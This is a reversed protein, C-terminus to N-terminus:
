DGVYTQKARVGLEALADEVDHTWRGLHRVELCRDGNVIDASYDIESQVVWSPIWDYIRVSGVNSVEVVHVDYPFKMLILVNNSKGKLTRPNLPMDGSRFYKADCRAVYLKMDLVLGRSWLGTWFTVRERWRLNEDGIARQYRSIADFAAGMYDGLKWNDLVELVRKWIEPFRGEQIPGLMNNFFKNARERFAPEPVAVRNEPLLPHLVAEFLREMLEPFRPHGDSGILDSEIAAFLADGDGRVRVERAVREGYGGLCQGIVREFFPGEAELVDEGLAKYAEAYGFRGSELVAEAVAEHDLRLFSREELPAFAKHTKVLLKWFSDPVDFPRLSSMMYASIFRGTWRRGEPESLLVFAYDLVDRRLLPGKDEVGLFIVHGLYPMEGPRVDAKPGLRELRERLAKLRERTMLSGGPYREDIRRAAERIRNFRHFYQGAVKLFESFGGNDSDAVSTGERPWAATCFAANRM